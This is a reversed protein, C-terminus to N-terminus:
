SGPSHYRLIDFFRIGDEVSIPVPNLDDIRLMHEAAAECIGGTVNDADGEVHFMDTQQLMEIGPREDATIANPFARAKWSYVDVHGTFPYGSATIVHKNGSTSLLFHRQFGPFLPDDPLAVAKLHFIRPDFELHGAQIDDSTYQRPCAFFYKGDDQRIRLPSAKKAEIQSAYLTDMAM